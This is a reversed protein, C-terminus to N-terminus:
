KKVVFNGPLSAIYAAMDKLDADSYPQAQSSMVANNRGFQPNLNGVQYARLAYYLYDPYQGALKPYVPLIPANLGAGHCAACNAKEVLAKGKEISSAQALGISSFLIATILAFKM